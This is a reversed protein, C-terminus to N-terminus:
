RYVERRPGIRYVTLENGSVTFLARWDGSRLRFGGPAGKLPKVDQGAADPAAAYAKLRERMRKRDAAPLAALDKLARRTYALSLM